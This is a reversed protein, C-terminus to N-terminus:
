GSSPRTLLFHLLRNIVWLVELGVAWGLFLLIHVFLAKTSKSMDLSNQDVLLLFCLSRQPDYQCYWDVQLFCVEHIYLACQVTFSLSSRSAMKKILHLSNVAETPTCSKEEKVRKHWAEETPSNSATQPSSTITSLDQTCDFKYNLSSNKM